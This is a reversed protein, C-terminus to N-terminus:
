AAAVTRYRITLVLPSDGATYLNAASLAVLVPQNVSGVTINVSDSSPVTKVIASVAGKILASTIVAQILPGLAAGTSYFAELDGTGTAYATTAFQLDVVIDDVVTLLGAGPAPLIQFATAFTNNIALMQAATITVTAQLEGGAGVNAGNLKVAGGGSTSLSLSKGPSSILALGNEDMRLSNGFGDALNPQQNEAM